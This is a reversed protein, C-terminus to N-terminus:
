GCVFGFRAFRNLRGGPSRIPQLALWLLRLFLLHSGKRALLLAIKKMNQCAASLLCQAQVKALGRFRAYRHGHLARADAFSREVTEKRPAYLRKGLGTTRNADVQEKYRAWM